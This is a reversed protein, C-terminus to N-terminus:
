ERSPLQSDNASSGARADEFAHRGAFCAALAKERHTRIRPSPRSCHYPSPRRESAWTGVAIAAALLPAGSAGAPQMVRM